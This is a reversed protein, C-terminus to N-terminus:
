DALAGDFGVQPEHRRCATPSSSKSLEPFPRSGRGTASYSARSRYGALKATSVVNELLLDSDMSRVSRFQNQQYDIVVFAANQPTILDDALPDRIPVSTM